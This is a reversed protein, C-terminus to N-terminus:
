FTALCHLGYVFIYLMMDHVTLKQLGASLDTAFFLSFTHTNTYSGETDLMGAMQIAVHVQYM